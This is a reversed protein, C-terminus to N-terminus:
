YSYFTSIIEPKIRVGSGVVNEFLLAFKVRRSKAFHVNQSTLKNDLSKM